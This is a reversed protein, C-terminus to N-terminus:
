QATVLKGRTGGSGEGTVSFYIDDISQDPDTADLVLKKTNMTKGSAVTIQYRGGIAETDTGITFDQDIDMEVRRTADDGGNIRLYEPTVSGTSLWFKADYSNAIQSSELSLENEIDWTGGLFRLTRAAGDAEADIVVDYAKLTGSTTATLVTKLGVAGDVDVDELDVTTSSAVDIWVKGLLTTGTTATLDKDVDLEAYDELDMNAVTLAADKIHLTMKTPSDGTVTLNNITRATSDDFTCTSQFVVDAVTANDGSDDPYGSAQLWNLPATWNTGGVCFGTCGWEYDTALAPGATFSACVVLAIAVIGLRTKM